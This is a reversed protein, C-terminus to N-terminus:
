LREFNELAFWFEQTSEWPTKEFKNIKCHMSFYNNIISMILLNHLSDYINFYIEM